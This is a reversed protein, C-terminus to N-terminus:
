NAILSSGSPIQVVYIGKTMTPLPLTVKQQSSTVSTQYVVSGGTTYITVPVSTSPADSFSIHLLGNNAWIRADAPEHQSIEKIATVGLIDLLGRYADIEGYGYKNNPYALDEEPHRCTRQLVGIIDERTLDPKAQLWLAIIGAIRIIKKDSKLNEEPTKHKEKSVKKSPKILWYIAGAM